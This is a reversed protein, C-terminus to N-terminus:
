IDPLVVSKPKTIKIEYFVNWSLVFCNYNHPDHETTRCPPCSLAISAFLTCLPEALRM